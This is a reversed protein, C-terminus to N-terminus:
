SRMRSGTPDYVPGCAVRAPRKTGMVDVHLDDPNELHEVGVYGMALSKRVTHGYGGSTIFGALEEGRWIPEYGAADAKTADIELTVLKRASGTDRECMVADRGVFDRKNYDIFKDLSAMAPTYDPSYERSWIGFSKELRLSLLALVGYPKAGLNRGVRFLDDYVKLAGFRPLHIEFGLEGSFSVRAVFASQGSIKTEVVSLFPFAEKSLDDETLQSLLARSNPGTVVLSAIDESCNEVAVGSGPLHDKFWRMNWNQMTGSGMLIFRDKALRMLTFEGILKGAHSLMPALRVRGVKPLRGALLHSLWNEAEPGSVEYNAFSTADFIGVAERCARCEEGVYEHSNSRYFSPIERVSEQDKAFWLPVELGFNTGFLANAQRTREYFPSVYLPRGAPWDENPFPIDFRREYYETAKEVVYHQKAYDGFRAVDLGFVDGEPQGASIWQALTLGVGAAQSFGAMVGCAAWYNQVGSVPGVLPNGDPTFTFPGNVIRKIGAEAVVPFRTFGNLLANELHELRPELLDTEGYNWPTGDVSWAYPNKEYVGYLVSKQEQRLYIGGDLDVTVATEKGFSELEPISESVLYHHEFPILPLDVGAMAGVERAWLGAANVVHEARVIGQDTVVDWGGGAVPIIEKVLTQLHIKAGNQRAAIAFAHTAGNPDVHGEDPDFLGGIVDSTDVLPSIKRIEEPTILQSDIGLVKHRAAEARLFDWREQTAAFSVGGPQHLGVHQGSLEEIENYLNITYSQLRAVNPDGNLAHFGAAAHWTSGATLQKRELLISDTLGHKTLHYLVACGVIGGGIVVVSAQSQM